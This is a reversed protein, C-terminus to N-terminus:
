FMRRRTVRRNARSASSEGLFTSRYRVAAAVAAAAATTELLPAIRRLQFTLADRGFWNMYGEPHEHILGLTTIERIGRRMTYILSQVLNQFVRLARSM